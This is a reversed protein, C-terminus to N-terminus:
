RRVLDAFKRENREAARVYVWGGAVLAPYALVGLTLWPLALGAVRTERLEPIQAFLLPLGAIVLAVVACVSLALGLQARVLSRLYVEGVATQEDLDRVAGRAAVGPTTRTRPSTVVVRRPPADLPTQPPEPQAPAPDAPPEPASVRPEGPRRAGPRSRRVLVDRLQRTHRRSVALEEDGLVVSCRGPAFRVEVVHAVAVLYSRHIRIFGADAWREELTAM